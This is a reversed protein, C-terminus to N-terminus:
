QQRQAFSSSVRIKELLYAAIKEKSEVTWGAVHPSLIVNSMKCLEDFANKFNDDGKSPPEFPLVDLAAAKIKGSKLQKVLSEINVIKGRSTNIIVVDSKCKEFFDDDLWGNTEKTLPIHLSIIDANTLVDELTTEEVFVSGFGSKYKDYAKVKVPWGEFLSAFATGNHGHGIIGITKGAIEWGRHEERLWYGDKVSNDASVLNNALALLMGLAHEAVARANGEPASFVRVGKEAAAELDIIELGSGLRAIWKLDPCKEITQRDIACRTNIVVGKYAPLAEEMEKRLMEPAYTWTYGQETLGQLMLPHVYDTVLVDRNQM